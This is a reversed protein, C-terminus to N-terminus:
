LSNAKTLAWAKFGEFKTRIDEWAQKSEEQNLDVSPLNMNMVLKFIKDKDPAKAAEKAAKDAAVKADLIAKTAAAAEDSIKKAAAAQDAIIKLQKDSEIKALRNTEATASEFRAKQEAFLKDKADSEAKLKANEEELKKKAEAEEKEKAIREEEAKVIAANKENFENVISRQLMKFMKEDMSGLDFTGDNVFGFPLLMELRDKKLLEKIAAEKIETAKEIKEFELEALKCTNAILNYAAQEINGKLLYESKRDDKFKLASTRIKMTAKRLTSAIEEDLSTPNNKDIKTAQHMIDNYLSLFPLYAAKITEAQSLDIGTQNIVKELETETKAIAIDQPSAIEELKLQETNTAANKM